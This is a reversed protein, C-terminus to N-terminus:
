MIFLPAPFMRMISGNNRGQSPRANAFNMSSHPQKSISFLRKLVFGRIAPNPRNKGGSSKDFASMDVCICM